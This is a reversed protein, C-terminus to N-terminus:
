RGGSERRKKVSFKEGRGRSEFQKEEGWVKEKDKKGRKDGKKKKRM